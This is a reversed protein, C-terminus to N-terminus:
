VCIMLSVYSVCVCRCAKHIDTEKDEEMCGFKLYVGWCGDCRESRGGSGWDEESRGAGGRGHVM